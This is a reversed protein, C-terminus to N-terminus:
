DWLSYFWKSFLELAENKCDERYQILAKEETYYKEEIDKYEPIESPFHLARGIKNMKGEELKEGFLGYKEEFVQLINDHEKQYSNKRQCTEENMERFLFIMNDLIRDWEAHYENNCSIEQEGVYETTELCSPFGHKTEKFQQLMDPMLNMFWYDINWLDKDCYGKTVRQFSYKINRLVLGLMKWPRKREYWFDTKNWVNDM